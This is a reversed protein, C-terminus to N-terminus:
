VAKILEILLKYTAELNRPDVIEETDDKWRWGPVTGGDMSTITIARMGKELAPTAETSKWTLDVPDIAVRSARSAKQMLKHLRPDVRKRMFLVPESTTYFLDGAGISELNILRSHKVDSSRTKLLNRMGYSGAGSAGLAVFWVEKNLLEDSLAAIADRNRERSEGGYAGGRWDSDDEDFNDWSGINAGETRADFHDDLGLWESASEVEEGRRGRREKKKGGRKRLSFRSKKPMEVPMAGVYSGEESYQNEYGSDDVDLEDLYLHEGDNYQELLETTVPAMTGTAGLPAFSGTLNNASQQVDARTIFSDNAGPMSTDLGRQTAGDGLSINADLGGVLPLDRLSAVAGGSQPRPPQYGPDEWADIDDDLHTDIHTSSVPESSFSSLEATANAADLWSPIEESALTRDPSALEAAELESYDRKPDYMYNNRSYDSIDPQYDTATGSTGSRNPDSSSYLSRSFKYSGSPWDPEQEPELLPEEVVPAPEPTPAAIPEFGSTPTPSPEAPSPAVSSDFMVAIEPAAAKAPAEIPEVPQVEPAAPADAIAESIPEPTYAITESPDFLAPEPATVPEPQDVIVPAAVPEPEPQVVPEPAPAPVPTPSELNAPADAFRSRLTTENGHTAIEGSAKEEEVKTWWSPRKKAPAASAQQVAPRESSAQRAASVAPTAATRSAAPTAAPENPAQAVAPQSSVPAAVPASAKSTHAADRVPSAAAPAATKAELSAAASVAAAAAAASVAGASATEAAVDEVTKEAAPIDSTAAKAVPLEAGTAGDPAVAQEGVAIPATDNKGEGSAASREQAIAVARAMEADYRTQKRQRQGRPAEDETTSEVAERPEGADEREEYRSHQARSKRGSHEGRDRDRDRGRDRSRGRGEDEFEVPEPARVEATVIKEALATMVALGSANSNAGKPTKLFAGFLQDIIAILMIIGGIFAIVAFIKSIIEPFPFMSILVCVPVALAAYMVVQRVIPYFRRIAPMQFLSPKQVDYYATIIVKGRRSSQSLGQPVYRAVVNQSEYRSILSGFPDTRAYSLYLLVLGAIGLILALIRLGPAFLCILAALFEFAFYVSRSVRLNGPCTFGDIDTQLGLNYLDDALAESTLEEGRSGVDRSPLDTSLASVRNRFNTM